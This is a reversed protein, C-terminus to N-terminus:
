IFASLIIMLAFLFIFLGFNLKKAIKLLIHITLIGLLFSSIFGILLERSIIFNTSNLFINGGLIVPLSMLFSLKLAHSEKFGRLLLTSVTLGSRSLGPLISIGQAVGVVFGDIIKLQDVEKSKKEKRKLQLLATALLLVGIALILGRGTITINEEFRKIIELVILGTLGSVLTVLIYFNLLKKTDKEIRRYNFLGKILILVDKRFYVLAAFFTGLHLFLAYNILENLGLTSDFFNVKAYILIGESSIPLWEAIGQIIGLVIPEIM